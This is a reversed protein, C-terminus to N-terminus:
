RHTPKTLLGDQALKLCIDMAEVQPLFPICALMVASHLLHRRPGHDPVLLLLLLLQIVPQASCHHM